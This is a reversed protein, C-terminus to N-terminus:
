SSLSGTRTIGPSLHRYSVILHCPKNERPPSTAVHTQDGLNGGLYTSPLLLRAEQVISWQTMMCTWARWPHSKTYIFFYKQRLMVHFFHMRPSAVVAPNPLPEFKVSVRSIDSTRLDCRREKQFSHFEREKFCLYGLVVMQFVSLPLGSTM